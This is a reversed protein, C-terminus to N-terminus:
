YNLWGYIAAAVAVILAGLSMVVLSAPSPKQTMPDLHRSTQQDLRM